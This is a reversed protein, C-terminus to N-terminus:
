SSSSKTWSSPFISPPSPSGIWPSREDQDTKTRLGALGSPGPGGVKKLSQATLRPAIFQTTAKHAYPRVTDPDLHDIHDHTVIYVGAKLEASDITVPLLRTSEKKGGAGSNSLYPDIVVTVESSRIIYGAQGLFWIGAQEQELPHDLIQRMPSDPPPTTPASTDNM